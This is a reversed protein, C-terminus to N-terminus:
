TVQRSVMMRTLEAVSRAQMKAMGRARYLEVTKISLGIRDAINKNYVGLIVYGLVERERPTLKSERAAYAAEKRKHEADMVALTEAVRAASSTSCRSFALDLAEELADEALPKELFTVAGKRMAQVASSVDADGSVYVVPWPIQREILADHVALGSFSRIRLDLMICAPEDRDRASFATVAEGPDGWGHVEYGAGELWFRTSERFDAHDDVIHVIRHSM